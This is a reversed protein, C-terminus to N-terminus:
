GIKEVKPDSDFKVGKASLEANDSPQIKDMLQSIIEITTNMDLTKGALEPILDAILNDVNQEAKKIDEISAKTANQFVEGLQTLILAHSLRPPKATLEVGNLNLIIDKPQLDDITLSM